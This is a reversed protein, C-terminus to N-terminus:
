LISTTKSALKNYMTAAPRDSLEFIKNKAKKRSRPQNAGEEVYYHEREQDMRITWKTANEEKEPGGGCAGELRQSPPSNLSICFLNEPETFDTIFNSRIFFWVLCSINLVFVTMLVVYFIGQWNQTGGSSYDQTKLTANFYQTQPETVINNAGTYNWFHVFPSGLGSLILTCGAMVALAESMSPTTRDLNFGTPMLQTLLRANSSKGDNLGDNLNVAMIWSVAINVWDKSLGGNPATLDSKHYSFADTPDECNTTLNGGGMSAHYETSCNPTLSGRISCLMHNTEIEGSTALLYLSDWMGSNSFNLITNFPLPLKAFVPPPREDGFGFISDLGNNLKRPAETFNHNNPWQSANLPKKKAASWKEYLIPSLEDVSVNVCLVNVYPAPVAARISYEGLGQCIILM